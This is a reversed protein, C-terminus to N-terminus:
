LWSGIFVSSRGTWLKWKYGSLRERSHKIGMQRSTLFFASLSVSDPARMRERQKTDEAAPIVRVKIPPRRRYTPDRARLPLSIVSIAIFAIM